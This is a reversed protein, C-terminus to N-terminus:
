KKLYKILNFTSSDLEKHMEPSTARFQELITKSLVKGLEVGWQDFCNINWIVSQVFIKHEYLALLAGLAQPNLEPLIITNSPRNGPIIKHPLLQEIEQEALKQELLEARVEAANKGIMLAQSQALCHATLMEHNQLLGHHGRKAVIFDVPVLHTGQHLLQHFAHQSNTGVGGWIISGTSYSVSQGNRQVTKGNSEMDAQQLYAPLLQLRQDYPIIGQTSAGFFNIYWIGLVAMIVPLNKEWPRTRFHVDMAQTGALLQKFNAMGITLAVPLGTASWVSFRGGVWDWLHLINEFPIGLAQAAKPKATIAIFHRELLVAETQNGLSQKLWEKAMEANHLTEQTTFSKSSIIFLTNAPKLKDLVQELHHGDINSIFHCHLHKNAYAQLAATVMQPGLDSGGIGINVIDSIKEGSCGLWQGTTIAEVIQDMHNLSSQIQPLINIGDVFIPTDHTSRLATHLAPRKESTNLAYGSFLQDIHTDLKVADALKFLLDCTEKTIRNKSYDLLLGAAEESFAEFRQQDGAFLDRMRLPAIADYHISLDQWAKSQTILSMGIRIQTHNSPLLSAKAQWSLIVIRVRQFGM